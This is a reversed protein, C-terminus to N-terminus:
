KWLFISKSLKTVPIFSKPVNNPVVFLPFGNELFLMGNGLYDWWSSKYGSKPVIISFNSYTTFCNVAGYITPSEVLLL